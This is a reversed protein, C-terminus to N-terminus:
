PMIALRSMPVSWRLHTDCTGKGGAIRAANVTAQSPTQIARRELSYLMIKLPELLNPGAM